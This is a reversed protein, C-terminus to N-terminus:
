SRLVRRVQSRPSGKLLSSLFNYIAAVFFVLVIQFINKASKRFSKERGLTREPEDPWRDCIELFLKPDDTIVGDIGRRISWEMWEEENVTWDFVLRGNRHARRLFQYGWPGTLSHQLLNFHMNPVAFLASAFSLSWGIYAMSFGPLYEMCLRVYNVQVSTYACPMPSLWGTFEWTV